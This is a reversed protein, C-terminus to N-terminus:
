TGITLSPTFEPDRLVAGTLHRDMQPAPLARADSAIAYWTQRPHYWPLRRGVLGAAKWHAALTEPRYAICGPYTWGPTEIPVNPHLDSCLFTALILANPALCSALRPLAQALMEPGAHSFISQAVIFDFLVGFSEAEFHASDSFRVEKRAIMEPGIEAAIADEVLWMNPEIGFYCGANLYPILLRGARLSGCGIDLVRHQERLGLATMLRFQTAGMFDWQAAPGVYASYHASGPRLSRAAERPLARTQQDASPGSM